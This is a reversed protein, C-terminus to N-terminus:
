SKRTGTYYAMKVLSNRAPNEPYQSLLEVARECYQQMKNAAYEVGGNRHVFQIIKEVTSDEHSHSALLGLIEQRTKGDTQRLAAILPLTLKHERIDNGVPKGALNNVEYDFIDDRIQFAMGINEGVETMLSVHVDDFLVSQTGTSTCAAIFSATKKYIINLYEEETTDLTEAKALQVLEGESMQQVAKTVLRLLEFESNVTTLHLAKSLLYDGALVAVQPGWSAHITKKGRRKDANDVIDDHILTATHIMEIAIAALYSTRCVEGHMKASLLVLLPRLQKGEITSLYATVDKLLEEQSQLNEKFMEKFTLMENAVPEVIQEVIKLM